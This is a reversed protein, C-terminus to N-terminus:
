SRNILRGCAFGGGVGERRLGKSRHSVRMNAVYPETDHLKRDEERWGEQLSLVTNDKEPIIEVMCTLKM